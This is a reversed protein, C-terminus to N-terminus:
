KKGSKRKHYAVNAYPRNKRSSCQVFKGTKRDRKVFRQTKPNYIQDRNRVNGSQKRKTNMNALKNIALEGASRVPKTLIKHAKSIRQIFQAGIKAAKKYKSSYHYKM